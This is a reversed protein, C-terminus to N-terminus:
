TILPLKAQTQMQTHTQPNVQPNRRPPNFLCPHFFFVLHTECKFKGNWIKVKAYINLLNCQLWQRSLVTPILVICPFCVLFGCPKICLLQKNIIHCHHRAQWTMLIVDRLIQSLPWSYHSRRNWSTLVSSVKFTTLNYSVEDFFEM